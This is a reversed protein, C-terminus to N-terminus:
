LSVNTSCYGHILCESERSYGGLQACAVAADQLGFADDCVTGWARNFCIEIRGETIDAGDMLRLDGDTCNAFPTSPEAHICLLVSIMAITIKIIIMVLVYMYNRQIVSLIFSVGM